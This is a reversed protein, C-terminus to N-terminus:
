ARVTTKGDSCNAALYLIHGYSHIRGVDTIVAGLGQLDIATLDVCSWKCSVISKGFM